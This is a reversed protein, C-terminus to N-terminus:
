VLKLLKSQAQPYLKLAEDLIDKLFSESKGVEKGRKLIIEFVELETIKKEKLKLAISLSEAPTTEQELDKLVLNLTAIKPGSIEFNEAAKLIKEAHTVQKLKLYARALEAFQEDVQSLYSSALDLAEMASGKSETESFCKGLIILQQCLDQKLKPDDFELEKLKRALSLADSNKGAKQLTSLFKGARKLSLPFKEIIDAAVEAGREFNNLEYLSDFFLLHSRFHDPGHAMAEEFCDAAESYEGNDFNILGEYFCAELPYEHINKAQNLEQIAQEPRSQNYFQRGRELHQFYEKSLTVRKFKNLIHNRIMDKNIPAKLVGDQEWELIDAMKCPDDGDMFVFIFANARLPHALLHSDVFVESNVDGLMYPIFLLDPSNQKIFSLLGAATEAVHINQPLMGLEALTKKLTTKVTKNQIGIACSKSSFFNRIMEKM